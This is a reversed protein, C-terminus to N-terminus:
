PNIFRYIINIVSIDGVFPQLWTFVFDQSSNRALDDVYTRSTAITNGMNDSVLVVLEIEPIDQLSKNYVKGTLIPTTSTSTVTGYDLSIEPEKSIDKQWPGFSTFEFDTLKPKSNKLVIGTEFIAFTKNKPVSTEGEKTTILRNESDYIKFQYTAKQNESNVNPNEVYAVASYVDGSINFTKSWLVVPNLTDATCLITCSGGCDVGKEDGNKIKDSCTPARYFVNWFFVLLTLFVVLLVGGGYMMRRKAAWLAM